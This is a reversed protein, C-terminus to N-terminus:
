YFKGLRKKLVPLNQKIEQLKEKYKKMRINYVLESIKNKKFRERQVNKMLDILVKKEVINQEIRRKLLKKELKKYIFYGVIGLIVIMIILYIWYKQFFNKIGSQLGKLSLKDFKEKEFADEFKELLNEVEQYREEQFAIKADELIQKTEESIEESIQLEKLVIKDMLLFATEKRQKIEDTYVLVDSYYIDNWNILALAERANSKEYETSNKDRLVESYKAQEFIQKAEILTDNMYLISFNNEQMEIIIQESENICQLAMEETIKSIEEDQIVFGTFGKTMEFSFFGIAFVVLICFGIIMLEEKM